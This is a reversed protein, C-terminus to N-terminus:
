KGQFWSAIAGFWGTKKKKREIALKCAEKLTDKATEAVSHEVLGMLDMAQVDRYEFNFTGTFKETEPDFMGYDSNKIGPMYVIIPAHLDQEDVFMSVIKKDINTYDIKPFKLGMIRAAREAARLSPAGKLDWGADCITIVDVDRRLLPMIAINLRDHDLLSFGGDVLSMIKQSALPNHSMNYMFNPVYAAAYHDDRSYGEVRSAIVEPTIEALAPGMNLLYNAMIDKLVVIVSHLSQVEKPCAPEPVLRAYLEKIANYMDVAFASGCTAMIYGLSLETGYFTQEHASLGRQLEAAAKYMKRIKETQELGLAAQVSPTLVTGVKEAGMKEPAFLDPPTTPKNVGNDFVRAFAWTAVFAELDFSGVSFPSFEITQRVPATPAGGVVATSILLPHIKENLKLESLQHNYPKDVM